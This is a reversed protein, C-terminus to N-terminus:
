APRPVSAVPARPAAQKGQRWRKIASRLAAPAAAAAALAYPRAALPRAAIAALAYRLANQPSGQEANLERRASSILFDHEVGAARMDHTRWGHILARAKMYGAFQRSLRQGEADESHDYYVTLAEPVYDVFFFESIRLWYEYDQMVTFTEDFYGVTEIVERRIMVGSTGHIVNRRLLDPYLYGRLHPTHIKRTAGAITEVGTYMLGVRDPGRRFQGVQLMLKDPKWADDSDLFAIFEGRAERLGRNRAAAVGSNKPQRIYRIHPGYFNSMVLATNDTSGDDVVIVEFDQFTQRLVSNLARKLLDSRNYTPIIVSVCCTSPQKRETPREEAVRQELHVSALSPRRATACRLRQLADGAALAFAHKASYLDRIWRRGGFQHALVRCRRLIDPYAICREALMEFAHALSQRPQILPPKREVARAIKELTAVRAELKERGLTVVNSGLRGRAPRRYYAIARDTTAVPAGAGLARAFIDDDQNFPTSEDWGSTRDFAHRSWLLACPPPRWGHLWASLSSELVPRMASSAPRARWVGSAHVYRRWQCAAIGGPARHLAAALEELANPALLDDADLFMLADGAANAAGLNRAANAGRHEQRLIRVPSMFRAACGVSFDSSGDDVIIIEQPPLTQNLAARLTQRLTQEANYCPIIVSIKM